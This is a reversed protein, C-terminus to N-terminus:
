HVHAMSTAGSPRYRVFFHFSHPRATRSSCTRPFTTRPRMAASPSADGDVRSSTTSLSSQASVLTPHSSSLACSAEDQRSSRSRPGAPRSPLSSYDRYIILTLSCKLSQQSRRRRLCEPLPQRGAHQRFSSTMLRTLRKTSAPAVTRNANTANVVRRTSAFRLELSLWDALRTRGGAWDVPM